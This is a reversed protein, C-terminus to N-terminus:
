YHVSVYSVITAEGCRNGSHYNLTEGHVSFVRLTRHDEGISRICLVLLSSIVIVEEGKHRGKIGVIIHEKTSHPSLTSHPGKVVSLTAILDFM